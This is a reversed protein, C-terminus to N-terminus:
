KVQEGRPWRTPLAADNTRSLSSNTPPACLAARASSNQAGRNRRM